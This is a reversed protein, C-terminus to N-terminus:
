SSAKDLLKTITFESVHSKSSSRSGGTAKELDNESLEVTSIHAEGKDKESRKRTM